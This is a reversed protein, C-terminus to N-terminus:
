LIQRVVSALYHIIQKCTRQLLHTPSQWFFVLLKCLSLFYSLSIFMQANALGDTHTEKPTLNNKQLESSKMHTRAHLSLQCFLCMQSCSCAPLMLLSCTAILLVWRECVCVCVCDYEREECARHRECLCVPDRFIEDRHATEILMTAQLHEALPESVLTTLIWYDCWGM